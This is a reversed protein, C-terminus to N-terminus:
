EPVAAPEDVPRDLLERIYYTPKGQSEHYTRAQMEALLGLTVLQVGTFALLIGLLLLPRDGIAQAEFLRVYGLYATILVGAGGMALGVLGFIQLPRTSYSLLFKVTALDLLVRITRSIGYKSRGHQRARHNVVVEAIRVGQESAIAPIFRHMEGYLRLSKVVEARFVKLSCGYDHLRVGTARSILANALTSPLRRNIWADKRAKRWGCVIDYGEELKDVMRPIDRLDNQLDGDATVILRGRARAFGASFAATQGFNRRLRVVRVRADAVHLASLISFTEDTSGDDVLIVEYSRGWAELTETLERCLAEVNPAEDLLPIVVSLEPGM